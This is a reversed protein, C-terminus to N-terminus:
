EYITSTGVSDLSADKSLSSLTFLLGTFGGTKLRKFRPGGWALLLRWGAVLFAKLLPQYLKFTSWEFPPLALSCHDILAKIQDNDLLLSAM